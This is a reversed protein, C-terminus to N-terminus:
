QLLKICLLCIRITYTQDQKMFVNNSIYTNHINIPRMFEYIGEIYIINIINPISHKQKDTDINDNNTVLLVISAPPLANM